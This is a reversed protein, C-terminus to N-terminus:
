ARPRGDDGAVQRVVGDNPHEVCINIAGCREHSATHRVRDEVGDIRCGHLKEPTAGGALQVDSSFVIMHSNGTADNKDASVANLGKSEVWGCRRRFYKLGDFWM